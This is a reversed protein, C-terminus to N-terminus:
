GQTRFRETALKGLSHSRARASSENPKDIIVAEFFEDPLEFIPSLRESTERDSHSMWEFLVERPLLDRSIGHHVKRGFEVLAGELVKKDAKRDEHSERNTTWPFIVIKGGHALKAYFSLLTDVAVQGFDADGHLEEDAQFHFPWGDFCTILALSNDPFPLEKFMNGTIHQRPEFLSSIAHSFLNLSKTTDPTNAIGSLAIDEPDSSDMSLFRAPKYRKDGVVLSALYGAQWEIYETALEVGVEQTQKALERDSQGRGDSNALRQRAEVATQSPIQLEQIHELYSRDDETKHIRLGWGVEVDPADKEDREQVYFHRQTFLKEQLRQQFLGNRKYKQDRAVEEPTIEYLSEQLIASLMNRSEGDQSFARATPVLNGHNNKLNQLAENGVLSSSLDRARNGDRLFENGRLLQAYLPVSACLDLTVIPINGIQKYTESARALWSPLREWAYGHATPAESLRAKLYSIDVQGHPVPPKYELLDTFRLEPDRGRSTEFDAM